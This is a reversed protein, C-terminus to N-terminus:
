VREDEVKYDGSIFCLLPQEDEPDPLQIATVCDVPHDTESHM